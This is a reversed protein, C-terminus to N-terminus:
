DLVAQSDLRGCFPIGTPVRSSEIANKSDSGWRAITSLSSAFTFGSYLSLRLTDELPEPIGRCGGSGM